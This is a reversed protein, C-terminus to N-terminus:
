QELESQECKDCFLNSHRDRKFFSGCLICHIQECVQALTGTNSSGGLKESRLGGDPPSESKVKM